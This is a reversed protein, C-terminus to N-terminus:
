IVSKCKKCMRTKTDKEIKYGVRTPKNCKPCILMLKSIDLARPVEVIGGEINMQPNKKVHKKYLNVGMILATQNKASLREIVGERGKDKGAIVTVKDGKKLKM